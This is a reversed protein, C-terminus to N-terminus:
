MSISFHCKNQLSFKERGRCKIHFPSLIISINISMKLLVIREFLKKKFFNPCLFLRWYFFDFFDMKIKFVKMNKKLFIQFEYEFAM